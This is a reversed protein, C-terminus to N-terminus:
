LCELLKSVETLISKVDAGVDEISICTIAQDYCGAIYHYCYDALYPFGLGDLLISHAIM